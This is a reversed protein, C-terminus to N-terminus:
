FIECDFVVIGVFCFREVFVFGGDRGFFYAEFADFCFEIVVLNVKCEDLFVLVGNIKKCLM